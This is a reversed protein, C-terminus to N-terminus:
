VGRGGRDNGSYGGLVRDPEFWTWRRTRRCGATCGARWRPTCKGARVQEPGALGTTGTHGMFACLDARLVWAAGPPQGAGSPARGELRYCGAEVGAPPAAPLRLVAEEGELALVIGAARDLRLGRWSAQPAAPVDVVAWRDAPTWGLPEGGPEPAVGLWDGNGVLRDSAAMVGGYGVRGVLPADAAAWARLPAIPASLACGAVALWRRSGPWRSCQSPTRAACTAKVPPMGTGAAERVRAVSDPWLRGVVEAGAAPQRYISAATLVRAEVILPADPLGLDIPLTAALAAAGCWGM